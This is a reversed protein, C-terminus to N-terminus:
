MFVVSCDLSFGVGSCVTALNLDNLRSVYLDSFDAPVLVMVLSLDDDRKCFSVRFVNFFFSFGAIPEVVGMAFAFM